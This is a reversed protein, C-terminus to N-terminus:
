AVKKKQALSDLSTTDLGAVPEAAADKLAEKLDVEEKKVDNEKVDKKGSAIFGSKLAVTTTRLATDTAAAKVNVKAETTARNDAVENGTAIHEAIVKGIIDVIGGPASEQKAVVKKIVQEAKKEVKKVAKEAEKKDEEMDEKEDSDKESQKKEKEAEEKVAAIVAAKKEKVEEKKQLKNLTSIAEDMPKSKKSGVSSAGIPNVTTAAELINDVLKKKKKTDRTHADWMDLDEKPKATELDDDGIKIAQAESTLLLIVAVSVVRNFKM